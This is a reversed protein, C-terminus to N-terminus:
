CVVVSLLLLVVERIGVLLLLSPFLDFWWSSFLDEMLVTVTADAAISDVIVVDDVTAGFLDKSLDLLPTVPVRRVSQDAMEFTEDDDEDDGDIM